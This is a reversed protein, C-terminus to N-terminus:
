RVGTLRRTIWRPEKQVQFTGVGLPATAEHVSTLLAGTLSMMVVLAVIGIVIGILTLASRVPHVILSQFAMRVNLLARQM